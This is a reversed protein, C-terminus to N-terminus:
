QIGHITFGLSLVMENMWLSHSATGKYVPVNYLKAYAIKDTLELYMSHGIGMRIGAEVGATIGNLRWWGHSVGVVNKIGKKGVDNDKGLVTNDAHPLMIGVGEKLLGALSGKQNLPGLLPLRQVLNVMIHNAGNHLNYLFYTETLKIKQNISRGGVTGTVDAHQDLVSSYKTHDYNFELAFTRAENVFRGVRISYQPTVPSKDFILGSTDWQPYDKARVQHVTFDNDLDPQSIHIDSPAWYEKNYGWSFYWEGKLDQLKAVKKTDEPLGENVQSQAYLSPLSPLLSALFILTTLSM